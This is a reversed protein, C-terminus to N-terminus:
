WFKNINWNHNFSSLLLRRKVYIRLTSTHYSKV